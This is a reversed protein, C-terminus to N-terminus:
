LERSMLYEDYYEGNLYLCKPDTGYINFGLRNYARIAATNTCTVALKLIIINHQQAWTICAQMFTNIIGQGRWEPKIYVRTIHAQHQSKVGRDRRITVMGILEKQHEAVFNQVILPDETLTQKAWDISCAEGAQYSAGFAGPNDRLAEQRLASYENAESLLAPRIFVAQTNPSITNIKTM